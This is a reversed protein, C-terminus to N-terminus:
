CVIFDALTFNVRQRVKINDDSSDTDSMNSFGNDSIEYDCYDDEVLMPLRPRNRSKCFIHKFRDNPTGYYHEVPHVKEFYYHLRPKPLAEVEPTAVGVVQRLARRKPKKKVKKPQGTVHPDFIRQNDIVPAVVNDPRLWHRNYYADRHGLYELVDASEVQFTNPVTHADLSMIDYACSIYQWRYKKNISYRIESAFDSTNDISARLAKHDRYEFLHWDCIQKIFVVQHRLRSHLIRIRASRPGRSTPGDWRHPKSDFDM